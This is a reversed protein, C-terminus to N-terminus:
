AVPLWVSMEGPGRNAWAYYPILRIPVKEIQAESVTQYLKGGWNGCERVRLAEGELVTVGGLLAPDHRPTLKADRPLHVESLAVAGPLDVAELCYVIPGRMVAVQNRAEEVLPHAKVLRVRM